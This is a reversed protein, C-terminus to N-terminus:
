RPPRAVVLESSTGPPLDLASEQTVTFRTRGYILSLQGIIGGTRTLAVAITEAAGIAQVRYPTTVVREAVVVGGEAKGFWTRPTVRVGNIAIAEAGANRLENVLDNMAREDFPGEIRVEVGPGTVRTVATAVRLQQLQERLEKLAVQGSQTEAQAGEVRLRLAFTEDRLASNRDSIQAILTTLSAASEATLARSFVERSRFQTVALLGLVLAVATVAVIGYRSRKM